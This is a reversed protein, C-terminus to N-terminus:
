EIFFVICLFSFARERLLAFIWYTLQAIRDVNNEKELTCSTTCSELLTSFLVSGSDIHGVNRKAKRGEKRVEKRQENMGEKRDKTREGKQGKM